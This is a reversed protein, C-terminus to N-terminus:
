FQGKPPEQSKTKRDGQQNEGRDVGRTRRARGPVHSLPQGGQVWDM